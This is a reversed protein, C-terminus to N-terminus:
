RCTRAAGTRDGGAVGPKCVAIREDPVAAFDIQGGIGIVAVTARGHTAERVSRSSAVAAYTRQSCASGTVAIAVARRGVTAFGIQIRIRSMAAVAARHASIRIGGSGAVTACAGKAGAIRPEGITVTARGITTLDIEIRVDVVAVGAAGLARRRAARGNARVANAAVAAATRAKCSTRGTPSAGGVDRIVCVVASGAARLARKGISRGTADAASARHASTSGAVAIAVAQRGVTAFGIQLCVDVVAVGAAGLTRERVRRGGAVAARASHTGAIRAVSIAITQSTITTLDIQLGVDVIAVSATGLARGRIARGGAAAASALNGAVCAIGITIQVCGVAALDIRIRVSGM